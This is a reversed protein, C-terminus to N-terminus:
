NNNDRVKVLGEESMEDLEDKDDYSYCRVYEGKGVM